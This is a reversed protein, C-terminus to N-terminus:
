KDLFAGVQMVTSDATYHQPIYQRTLAPFDFVRAVTYYQQDHSSYLRQITVDIIYHVETETDACTFGIEHPMTTEDKWKVMWSPCVAYGSKGEAYMEIITHVPHDTVMTELILGPCTTMDIYYARGDEIYVTEDNSGAVISTWGLLQLPAPAGTSMWQPLTTGAPIGFVKPSTVAAGVYPAIYGQSETINNLTTTVLGSAPWLTLQDVNAYAPGHSSSGATKIVSGTQPPNAYVLTDGSVQVVKGNDGSQPVPAFVGIETNDAIIQNFDTDLTLKDVSHEVYGGQGNNRTVVDTGASTINATVNGSQNATFQAVQVGNSQITLTGNGISPKNLIEAATGTAANWDAQVNPATNIISHDNISIGTGATYAGACGINSRAQAKQTETLGQAVNSLVKLVKESM